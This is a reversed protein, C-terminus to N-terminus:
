SALTPAVRSRRLADPFLSLAVSLVFGGCLPLLLLLALRVRRLLTESVTAGSIESLVGASPDVLAIQPVTPLSASVASLRAELADRRQAVALAERLAPRKSPRVNKIAVNLAGVPRLESIAARENRLRALQELALMRQTSQTERDARFADDSSGIYGSLNALTVAGGVLWLAAAVIAAPSRRRWLGAVAAPMFLVLADACIALAAFLWGGVRMAYATTEIMGIVALAVGVSAVITTALLRGCASLRSPAPLAIVPAAALPAPPSQPAVAIAAAPEAALEPESSSASDSGAPPSPPSLSAPDIAATIAAPVPMATRRQPRVQEATLDGNHRWSELRRRVTDRSWGWDRALLAISKRGATGGRLSALAQQESFPLTGHM